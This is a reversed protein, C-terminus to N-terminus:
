TNTTAALPRSSEFVTSCFCFGNVDYRGYSKATVSKYSLQGLDAHVNGALVCQPGILYTLHIFMICTVSLGFFSAVSFLMTIAGFDRKFEHSMVFVV